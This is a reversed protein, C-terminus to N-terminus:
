YSKKVVRLEQLTEIADGVKRPTLQLAENGWNAASVQMLLGWRKGRSQQQSFQRQSLFLAFNRADPARGWLEGGEKPVFSARRRAHTVERWAGVKLSIGRRFIADGWGEAPNGLQASPMNALCRPGRSQGHDHPAFIRLAFRAHPSRSLNSKGSPPNQLPPHISTETSTWADSATHKHLLM